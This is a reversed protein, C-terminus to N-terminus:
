YYHIHAHLHHLMNIVCQYTDILKQRLLFFSCYSTTDSNSNSSHFIFVILIIKLSICMFRMSCVIFAYLINSFLIAFFSLVVDISSCISVITSFVPNNARTWGMKRSGRSPYTHYTSMLGWPGFRPEPGYWWTEEGPVARESQDSIIDRVWHKHQLGDPRQSWYSTSVRM